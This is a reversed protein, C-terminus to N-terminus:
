EFLVPQSENTNGRRRRDIWWNFLEQGNEFTCRKGVSRRLEVIRDFTRVYQAAIKPWREIDRESHASMPCLVCGLRKFGEDYLSCYSLGQQRIFEWVDDTTWDIVPHLFTRTGDRYCAETMQRKARRVSEAWRVGTVVVRGHGGTEKLERCCYRTRRIPPFGYKVMLEWMSMVPRRREVSPYQRRIFHVLEPPDVTTIAYHADFRVGAIEALRHIVISDKGGSFALYYGEEPEHAKLREIAIQVKDREGFLTREILM